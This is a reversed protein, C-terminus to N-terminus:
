WMGRLVICIQLTSALWTESIIMQTGKFLKRCSQQNSLHLWYQSTLTICATWIVFGLQVPDNIFAKVNRSKFEARKQAIHAIVFVFISLFSIWSESGESERHGDWDMKNKKPKPTVICFDLSQISSQWLCRELVQNIMTGQKIKRSVFIIFDKTIELRKM